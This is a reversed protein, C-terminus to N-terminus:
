RRNNRPVLISRAHFDIGPCIWRGRITQEIGRIQLASNHLSYHFVLVFSHLEHSEMVEKLAFINCSMFTLSMMVFFKCDHFRYLDDHGDTEAPESDFNYTQRGEYGSNLVRLMGETGKDNDPYWVNVKHGRLNEEHETVLRLTKQIVEEPMQSRASSWLSLLHERIEFSNIDCHTSVPDPISESTSKPLTLAEAALCFLHRATLKLGPNNSYSNSGGDYFKGNVDDFAVDDTAQLRRRRNNEIFDDLKENGPDPENGDGSAGVEGALEGAFDDAKGGQYLDGGLETNDGGGDGNNNGWENNNGNSWNNNEFSNDSALKKQDLVTHWERELEEQLADCNLTSIIDLAVANENADLKLQNPGISIRRGGGRKLLAEDSLGTNRLATSLRPDATGGVPHSSFIGSILFVYSFSVVGLLSVGVLALLRDAPSLQQLIQISDAFSQLKRVFDNGGGSGRIRRRINSRNIQVM